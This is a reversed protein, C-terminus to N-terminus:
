PIGRMTDKKSKQQHLAKLENAYPGLIRLETKNVSSVNRKQMSQSGSGSFLFPPISIKTEFCSLDVVFLSTRLSGFFVCSQSRHEFQLFFFGSASLPAGAPLLSHVDPLKASCERSKLATYESVSIHSTHFRVKTSNVTYIIWFM